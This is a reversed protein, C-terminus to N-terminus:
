ENIYYVVVTALLSLGVAGIIHLKRKQKKKPPPSVPRTVVTGPKKPKNVQEEM